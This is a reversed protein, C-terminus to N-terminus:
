RAPRGALVAADDIAFSPGVIFRYTPHTPGAAQWEDSSTTGTPATVDPAIFLHNNM